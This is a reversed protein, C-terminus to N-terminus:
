AIGNSYYNRQKGLESTNSCPRLLIIHMYNLPTHAMIIKSTLREFTHKYYDLIFYEKQTISTTM